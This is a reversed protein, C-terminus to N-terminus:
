MSNLIFIKYECKRTLSWIFVTQARQCKLRKGKGSKRIQPFNNNATDDHATKQKNKTSHPHVRPLHLRTISM